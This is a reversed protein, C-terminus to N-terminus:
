AIMGPRVVAEEAVSSWRSVEVRGDKMVLLMNKEPDDLVLIDELPNAALVLLDAAFGPRIQGLLDAQMLLQAANVTACRLCEAASLVQARLAFEGAQAVGFAGPLDTGYCLTVGADRALTLAHLGSQLVRANKAALTSSLYGPVRNAALEAYAVLTPTLFTGHEAMYRATDADLLNGHEIARAGNDVAHRIAAPTYAHATVYTQYSSAVAAIAQIEDATFQTNGGGAMIKIFDAGGRLEERAYKLCEPVGNVIRGLGTVAGGCCEHNHVGRFDAHGGTQSLARGALFMRPGPFVGEEVAEKLAYTTGGCDRVATFGRELVQRCVFPQRFKVVDEPMTFATALTETGPTASLHVHCDILGPCLYRGMADVMVVDGHDRAPEEATAYVAQIIGDSVHVTQLARVEGLVPDIINANRFLFDRRAPRTWPRLFRQLADSDQHQGTTSM